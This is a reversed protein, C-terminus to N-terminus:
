KSSNALDLKLQKGGKVCKNFGKKAKAKNKKTANKKSLKKMSACVQSPAQSPKKSLKAMASVCEAFQTKKHGPLKTKPVGKCYQGPAIQCYTTDTTGPPCANSQAGASGSTAVVAAVCILAVLLLSRIRM